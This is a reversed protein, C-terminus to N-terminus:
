EVTIAGATLAAAPLTTADLALVLGDATATVSFPVALLPTTGDGLDVTAMGGFSAQGDSALAGESVKGEVTIQQPQGLLSIGLLVAHFQGTASGNSDIFVGTGVEMGDLSVGALVPGGTLLAAAAATVTGVETDAVVPTTALAVVGFVIALVCTLRKM